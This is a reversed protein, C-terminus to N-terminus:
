QAKLFELTKVEEGFKIDGGIFNRKTLVCSRLVSYGGAAPDLVFDGEDTTATILALQLGVPKAHPHNKKLIKESWVDPINHCSWTGKAKIPRKQIVILHESRKRTRYGMGIKGKDWTILDVVQLDTENLWKGKWECLHFSDVWLFLYGSPMLVREIAVVFNGIDEESMQSLSCRLKERGKGENGYKLKDLVGRYQPDFFCVKVTEDKIDELLRMGCTKNKYNCRFASGSKLIEKEFIM